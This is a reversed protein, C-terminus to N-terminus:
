SGLEQYDVVKVSGGGFGFANRVIPDYTFTFNNCDHLDAGVQAGFLKQLNKPDFNHFHQNQPVSTGTTSDWSASYVLGRIYVPTARKPEYCGCTATWSSDTDYDSSDISGGVALIGPNNASSDLLGGNSSVNVTVPDKGSPANLVQYSNDTGALVLGAKITLSGSEVILGGRIILIPAAGATSAGLASQVDKQISAYNLSLSGSTVDYYGAPLVIADPWQGANCGQLTNTGTAFCKYNSTTKDAYTLFATSSSYTNAIPRYTTAYNISPFPIVPPAYDKQLWLSGSVKGGAFVGSAPNGQDCVSCATQAPTNTTGTYTKGTYDTFSSTLIGGNYPGGTIDPAGNGMPITNTLKNIQGRLPLTVSGAEVTGTVLSNGSYMQTSDCQGGSQAYGGPYCRGNLPDYWQYGTQPINGGPTSGGGKAFTINGVAEMTNVTYESSYDLNIYGNSHIATTQVQPSLYSNHHHIDIGKSAFMSYDFAPPYSQQVTERITRTNAGYTGQSWIILRGTANGGLVENTVWTKYSANGLNQSPCPNSQPCQTPLESWYTQGSSPDNQSLKFFIDSIGAEAAGEASTVNRHQRSNTSNQLVNGFMAVVLITVFLGIAIVFIMAVGQDGTATSRMRQRIM